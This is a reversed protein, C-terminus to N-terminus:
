RDPTEEEPRKQIPPLPPLELVVRWGGDELVCKVSHRQSAPTEGMITVIAWDGEIRAEYKRPRYRLSLRSPALMEEPGVKRGIVSSARKAREALNRKAESWVLEMADRGAKPDGHVRQLRLIFEEVVREPEVDAREKECGFASLGLVVLLATGASPRGLRRRKQASL